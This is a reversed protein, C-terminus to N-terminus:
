ATEGSAGAPEVSIKLRDTALWVVFGLESAIADLDELYGGDSCGAALRGIYCDALRQLAGLVVAPAGPLQVNLAADDDFDPNLVARWARVRGGLDYAKVAAAAAEHLGYVVFLWFAERVAFWTRRM